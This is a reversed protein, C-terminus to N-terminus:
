PIGTKGIKWEATQLGGLWVNLVNHVWDGPQLGGQLGQQQLVAQGVHRGVVAEPM